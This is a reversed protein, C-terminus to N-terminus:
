EERNRAAEKKLFRYIPYLLIFALLAFGFFAGIIIWTLIISRQELDNWGFTGLCIGSESRMNVKSHLCALKRVSVRIL